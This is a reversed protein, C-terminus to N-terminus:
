FQDRRDDTKRRGARAVSHLWCNTVLEVAAVVIEVQDPKQSGACHNIAMTESHYLTFTM